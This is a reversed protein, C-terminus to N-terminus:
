AVVTTKRDLDLRRAIEAISAREERFLRHIELWREKQVMREEELALGELVITGRDCGASEEM